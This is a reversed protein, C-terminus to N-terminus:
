KEIRIYQSAKGVKAIGRQIEYEQRAKLRGKLAAVKSSFKYSQREQYLFKAEGCEVEHLSQVVPLVEAKLEAIDAELKKKRAELELIKKFKKLNIKIEVIRAM